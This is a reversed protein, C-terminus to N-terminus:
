AMVAVMELVQEGLETDGEIDVQDRIEEPRWSKSFLKWAIAPPITVATTPDGRLDSALEWKGDRRHLWWDGGAEDTVTVQILTGDPALTLRFTHPLAQFFTDLVPFFFRRNMIGEKGVADRIQQQHHWKETYERGLHMWNLSTSEGAWGVSFIAEEFPDLAEYYRSVQEGTAEHLLIMTAPSIRRCAQVWDQNLQNLWNVIDRYANSPPPEEGFYRDRQMSLTRLNGDLLHSAVDKVKWKKAVTQAQWEEPSLSQLLNILLGDLPRFLHRTEIPVDPHNGM